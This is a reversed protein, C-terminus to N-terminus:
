RHQAQPHSVLYPLKELDEYGPATGLNPWATTLEEMLKQHVAPNDLVHFVGNTLTLGVTDSGAFLLVQAEELLSKRTPPAASAGKITDDLLRNYIIPHPANKLEEPNAM